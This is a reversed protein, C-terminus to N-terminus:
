LITHTQQAVHSFADVTKVNTEGLEKMFRSSEMGVRHMQDETTGLHAVYDVIKQFSHGLEEIKGAALESDDAQAAAGASIGGVAENIEKTTNGSQAAMENLLEGSQKVEKSVMQIEHMIEVLTDLFGNVYKGFIKGRISQLLSNKGVM